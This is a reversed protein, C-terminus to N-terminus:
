QSLIGIMHERFKPDITRTIEHVAYSFGGLLIAMALPDNGHRTLVEGAAGLLARCVEETAQTRAEEMLDTM